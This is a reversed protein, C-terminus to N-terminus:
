GRLKELLGNLTAAEKETLNSIMGLAEGMNRDIDSLVERGKESIVIEVRRRDQSGQVRNVLDKEVLRDILRTVDTNKYLMRDKILYNGCTEPYQGRLIRLVNFQPITIGFRDLFEQMKTSVYNHTLLINIISKQYEPLPKTQKIEQELRSM